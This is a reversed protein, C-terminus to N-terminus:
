LAVAKYFVRLIYTADMIQANLWAFGGGSFLIILQLSLSLVVLAVAAEVVGFVGGLVTNLAGIVPVRHLGTFLRAFYRVALLTAMFLVLFLLGQLISLVPERLAADILTEVLQAADVQFAQRAAEDDMIRQLGSPIADVLEGATAGGNALFDELRSALVLRLADRVVNDYLFGAIVPAGSRAVFVAAVYGALGIVTRVLGRSAGTGIFFGLIALAALDWLVWAAGPM